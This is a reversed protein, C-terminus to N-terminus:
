GRVMIEGRYKSVNERLSSFIRTLYTRIWEVMTIIPEEGAVLVISNFSKILNNILVVCKSHCKIENTSCYKLELKGKNAQDRFFHFRTEIHKSRGHAVFHVKQRLTNVEEM